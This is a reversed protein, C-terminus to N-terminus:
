VLYVQLLVLVYLHIIGPISTISSPCSCHFLKIHVTPLSPRVFLDLLVYFILIQMMCGHAMTSMVWGRLYSWLSSLGRHYLPEPYM